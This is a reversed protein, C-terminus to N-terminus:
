EQSGRIDLRLRLDVWPNRSGGQGLIQSLEKDRWEVPRSWDITADVALSFFALFETLYLRFAEKWAGDDDSGRPSLEGAVDSDM